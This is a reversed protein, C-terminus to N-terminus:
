LKINEESCNFKKSSSLFRKKKPYKQINQNIHKTFGFGSLIYQQLKNNKKRSNSKKGEDYKEIM